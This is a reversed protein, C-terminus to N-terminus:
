GRWFRCWGPPMGAPKIPLYWYIFQGVWGGGFRAELRRLIGIVIIGAFICLLYADLIAGAFICFAFGTFETISFIFIRAPDDLRRCVRWKITENM